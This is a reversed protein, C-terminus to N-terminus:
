GRSALIKECNFKVGPIQITGKTSKAIGNLAQINVIMYERPVLNIDIVEATWNDRYSVGSPNNIRAAIVPAQIPIITEKQAQFAEVKELKGSAEARAIKEDLIKKQKAAEADALKQLRDQEARAEAKKQNDYNIMLRKYDKEANLLPNLLKDRQAVAEKHAKHAKDVIPDFSEKVKKQREKVLKLLVAAEDYQEQSTISISRAKAISELAEKEVEQITENSM